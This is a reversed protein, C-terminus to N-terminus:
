FLFLCDRWRISNSVSIGGKGVGRACISHKQKRWVILASAWWSVLRQAAPSLNNKNWICVWLAVCIIRTWENPPWRNYYNLNIWANAYYHNPALASLVEPVWLNDAAAAATAGEKSALSYISFNTRTRTDSVWITKRAAACIGRHLRILRKSKNSRARTKDARAQRTWRRVGLLLLIGGLAWGWFSSMATRRFAVLTQHIHNKLHIYVKKPFKAVEQLKVM